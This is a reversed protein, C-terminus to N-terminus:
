AHPIALCKNVESRQDWATALHGQAFRRGAGAFNHRPLTTQKGNLYVKTHKSAEVFTAGKTALCRKFESTKM